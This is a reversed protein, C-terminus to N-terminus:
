PYQSLSWGIYLPAVSLPFVSPFACHLVLPLCVFVFSVSRTGKHVVGDSGTGTAPPMGSTSLAKFFAGLVWMVLSACCVSFAGSVPRLCVKTLHYRPACLGPPSCCSPRGVRFGSGFLSVMVRLHSRFAFDVAIYGLVLSSVLRFGPPVPYCRPPFLLWSVSHGVVIVLSLLDCCSLVCPSGILVSFLM